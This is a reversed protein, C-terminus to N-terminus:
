AETLERPRKYQSVHVSRHKTSVEKAAIVKEDIDVRAMDDVGFRVLIYRDPM